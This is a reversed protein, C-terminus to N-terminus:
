QLTGITLTNCGVPPIGACCGLTEGVWSWTPFPNAACAANNNTWYIGAQSFIAGGGAAVTESQKVPGGVTVTVGHGTWQETPLAPAIFPVWTPPNVTPAPAASAPKAQHKARLWTFARERAADDPLQALLADLEGLIATETKM